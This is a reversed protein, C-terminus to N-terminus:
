LPIASDELEFLRPGQRIDRTKLVCISVLYLNWFTMLLKKTRIIDHAQQYQM